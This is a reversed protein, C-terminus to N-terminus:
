TKPLGEPIARLILSSEPEVPIEVTGQGSKPLVPKGTLLDLSADQRGKIKVSTQKGFNLVVLADGRRFAYAAGNGVVEVSEFGGEALAPCQERLEILRAYHARLGHPDAEFDLAPPDEYPEFEAGVEDGCYVVPLGPLTLLLTAAVRTKEPGHRSIFRLGTDNNNLFRAVQEPPANGIAQQLRAGIEDEKEFVGEWSWQGLKETWDYAASFGNQLYYADRASAEALLFVDPHNAKLRANLKGWFDPQREKPGWAADVRFGDVGYEKLWYEFSDTVMQQVQPHAYNLNILNDWDFYHTANGQADRDFFNYYPSSPGHKLAHQYYPHASSVHNPPIDLLVKLGREHAEEVLEKLDAPEGFDPRIAQFDTAAYSIASPDDTAQIPSLWLADVGLEDLEDLRETVAQLPAEGFLPPVVGYAM